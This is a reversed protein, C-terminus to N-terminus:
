GQDKILVAENFYTLLALFNIALVITTTAAHIQLRCDHVFYLEFIPITQTDVLLTFSMKSITLNFM